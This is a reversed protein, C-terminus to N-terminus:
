WETEAFDKLFKGWVRKGEKVSMLIPDIVRAAADIEDLPTQFDYDKALAAAKELPNEDNIWGTDVSNMYIGSKVFDQASTRTMMNLAAKAMNTHPHEPGKFRYFKGEMASVNVIHRDPFASKELLPKLRANLVFPAVTNIALVEILEPTAVEHMKLVWSNRKRLDLQQGNVDVLGDPLEPGSEADEPLLPFQSLEASFHASGGASAVSAAGAGGSAGASQKGPLLRRVAGNEWAEYNLLSALGENGGAREQVALKEFYKAPRRVTQCANNIIGNLESFTDKLHAAFAEVSSISRFDLGYVHLRSRWEDSDAEHMYRLAADRPFRSTGIVTAGNRLLKLGSHFGIKVRCGTLLFTRGTLDVTLNRKSFNLDACPPCLRDYFSHMQRFRRKCIYCAKPSKAHADDASADNATGDVTYTDEKAGGGACLSQLREVATPAMPVAAGDPIRAVPSGGQSANKELRRLNSIRESRLTRGNTHKRDLDKDRRRQEQRWKEARYKEVEAPSNNALGYLAKVHKPMRAAALKALDLGDRRLQKLSNHMLQEQSAELVTSLVRLSTDYEAQSFALGSPHSGLPDDM